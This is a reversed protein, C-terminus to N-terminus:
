AIHKVFIASVAAHGCWEIGAGPTKVVRLCIENRISRSNAVPRSMAVVSAMPGAAAAAAATAASAIAIDNTAGDTAAGATAVATVLAGTTVTAGDIGFLVIAVGVGSTFITRTATDIAGIADIAGNARTV